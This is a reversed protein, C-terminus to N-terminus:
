RGRGGARRRFVEAMMLVGGIVLGASGPEPVTQGSISFSANFPGQKTIDDGVRLWDPALNENRIWSQLDPVPNPKPASLWFFNDGTSLLVQPVIFYHDAPLDFPNTLTVNLLIEQGRVPGEGGTFQSPVKNIGNLVSNAATFSGSIVSASFSLGGVAADDREAFAIDSPSNKRTPVNGSPPNTSDKPFVRYIEVRVETIDSLSASSPILGYFSANTLVTSSGLIFDDASEIEIGAPSSPRSGTAILGDPLGTSFSFPSANAASSWIAVGLVCFLQATLRM